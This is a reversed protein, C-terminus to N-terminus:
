SRASACVSPTCGLAQLTCRVHCHRAPPPPHPPSLIQLAARSWFGEQLSLRPSRVSPSVPLRAARPTPCAPAPPSPLAGLCPPSSRWLLLPVCARVSSRSWGMNPAERKAKTMAAGAPLRGRERLNKNGERRGRQNTRCSAAQLGIPTPKHNRM